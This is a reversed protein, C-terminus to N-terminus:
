DEWLDYSGTYGKANADSGDGEELKGSDTGEPMIVKDDNRVSGALLAEEHEILLLDTSPKVYPRKGGFLMLCVKTTTEITKM